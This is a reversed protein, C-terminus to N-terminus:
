IYFFDFPGFLLQIRRKPRKKNKGGVWVKTM